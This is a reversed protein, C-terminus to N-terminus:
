AADQARQRRARSPRAVGSADVELAAEDGPVSQAPVLTADAVPEVPDPAEAFAPPPAVEAFVGLALLAPVDDPHLTHATSLYRNTANNGARYSRGNVRFTQSGQGPGIYQLVRMGQRMELNPVGGGLIAAQAAQRADAVPKGCGCGMPNWGEGIIRARAANMLAEGGANDVHHQQGLGVRYVFVPLRVEEGCHGARRLRAFGTWDDWGPAGEDFGGVDRWLATPVLASIAHLNYRTYDWDDYRAGYTNIIPTGDPTTAPTGDARAGYHLGFVYSRSGAAFARLLVALGAPLLYDDADLHLAFVGRAARLGANRAIAPRLGLRRPADIVRVRPHRFALPSGSDNVVIVEVDRVSGGLASAVASGVYPRHAPGCPTIISVLPANM